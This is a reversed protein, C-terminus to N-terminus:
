IRRLFYMKWKFNSCVTIDKVSSLSASCFILSLLVLLTQLVATFQSMHLQFCFGEYRNPPEQLVQYVSVRFTENENHEQIFEKYIRFEAATVAEGEPIRSLDFRFERRHQQYLLDQDQDVILFVCLSLLTSTVPNLKTSKKIHKILIWWIM